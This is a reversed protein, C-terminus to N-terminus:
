STRIIALRAIRERILESVKAYAALFEALHKEGNSYADGSLADAGALVIHSLEKRVAHGCEEIQIYIERPYFPSLNESTIALRNHADELKRCREVLERL